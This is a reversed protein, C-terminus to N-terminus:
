KKKISIPAGHANLCQKHYIEGKGGHTMNQKTTQIVSFIINTIPHQYEYFSFTATILDFNM